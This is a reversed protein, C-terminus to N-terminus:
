GIELLVKQVSSCIQLVQPIIIGELTNRFHQGFTNFQKKKLHMMIQRITLSQQFYTMKFSETYRTVFIGDVYSHKM